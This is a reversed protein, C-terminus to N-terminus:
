ETIIDKTVAKKYETKKEVSYEGDLEFVYAKGGFQASMAEAKKKAEQKTLRDLNQSEHIVIHFKSCM